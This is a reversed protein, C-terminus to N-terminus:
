PKAKGYDVFERTVFDVIKGSSVRIEFHYWGLKNKEMEEGIDVHAEMNERRVELQIIQKTM